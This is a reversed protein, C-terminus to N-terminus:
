VSTVEHAALRRASGPDHSPLYITPTAEVFARTCALSKQAAKFDLTVGDIIQDLMTQDTYSVDGAFFYTTEEDEFVVSLHGATHGETPVLHVDGTQTLTFSQEFPGVAHSGYEILTPSFWGPWQHPLFGRVRGMFGSAMAYESRSLVFESHPFHYLGGAHDTHLHTLVVWRVDDPGIGLAKLQPGIEEEPRVWERCGFKFYPHWVPFYGPEAVRSTEGTDIVIIGEPHEIVWAYIPLPETWKPDLLTNLLRLYGRGRRGHRQHEKVAVTGTQIAHVRM